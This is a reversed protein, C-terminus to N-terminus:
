KHRLLLVDNLASLTKRGVRGDVILGRSKQFDKIAKITKPGSRGDIAGAYFGAARLAEQAVAFDVSGNTVLGTASFVNLAQWTKQDVFRSVPLGSQEQFRAIAQRAQAGLKGDIKGPNAGHILLLKQLLEVKENAVSPIVEGLIKKEQAGEKQLVGYILDCGSGALVAFSVVCFVKIFSYLM